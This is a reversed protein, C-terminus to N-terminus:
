DHHALALEPQKDAKKLAEVRESFELELKCAELKLMTDNTKQCVKAASIVFELANIKAKTSAKMSLFYQNRWCHIM